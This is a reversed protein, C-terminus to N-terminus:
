AAHRIEQTRQERCVFQAINRYVNVGDSGSREPHFQFAVVNDKHVASCYEVDGYRTTALTVAPDHPQVYFSHVFYMHVGDCLGTLPTNEWRDPKGVPRCVRNWCVEPVKLTGHTGRPRGLHVVRGPLLDLGKHLGFEESESMLLQMGLCIGILPKGSHAVLRLPEVLDLNKLNQMADGFAGVGPLIVARSALITKSDATIEANLGVRECARAVSFLNGLGYDVIAVAASTTNTM